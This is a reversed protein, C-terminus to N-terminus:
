VPGSGGHPKTLSTLTILAALTGVMVGKPSAGPPFFIPKVENAASIAKKMVMPEIYESIIDDSVAFNEWGHACKNRLKNLLQIDQYMQPPIIGLCFALDVKSSFSNLTRGMLRERAISNGHKFVQELRDAFVNDLIAVAVLVAGRDSEGRLVAVAKKVLEPDLDQLKTLDHVTM